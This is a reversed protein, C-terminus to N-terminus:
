FTKGYERAKQMAVKGAEEESDYTGFYLQKGNNYICVMFKGNKKRKVYKYKNNNKKNTLGFKGAKNHIVAKTRGNLRDKVKIGEVPYWILLIKMM